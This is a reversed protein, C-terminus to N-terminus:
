FFGMAEEHPNPNGLPEVYRVSARLPKKREKKKQNQTRLSLLV